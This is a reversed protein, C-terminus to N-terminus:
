MKPMRTIVARDIAGILIKFFQPFKIKKLHHHFFHGSTGFQVYYEMDAPIAGQM